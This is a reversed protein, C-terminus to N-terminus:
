TLAGNHYIHLFESMQIQVSDSYNFLIMERQPTRYFARKITSLRPKSVAVFYSTSKRHRNIVFEAGIAAPCWKMCAEHVAGCTKLDAVEVLQCRSVGIKIRRERAARV